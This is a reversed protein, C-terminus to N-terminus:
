RQLTMEFSDVFYLRTQRETMEREETPPQLHLQSKAM